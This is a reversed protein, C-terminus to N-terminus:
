NFQIVSPDFPQGKFPSGEANWALRLRSMQENEKQSKETKRQQVHLKEIANQVDPSYDSLSQESSVKSINIAIENLFLKDWWCQKFKDSIVAKKTKEVEVNNYPLKKGLSLVLKRDSISWIVDTHRYKDWTEANVLIEERPFLTKITIFNSKLDLKVHKALKVDVPLYVSLEIDKLTQSWCYNDFAAGNKYESENFKSTSVSCSNGNPTYFSEVGDNIQVNQLIDPDCKAYTNKNDTEVVVEEGVFGPLEITPEEILNRQEFLPDYKQM